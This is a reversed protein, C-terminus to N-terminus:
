SRVALDWADRPAYPHDPHSGEVIYVVNEPEPVPCEDCGHVEHADCTPPEGNQAPDYIGAVKFQLPWSPQHAMLVEADPPVDQLLEILEQATMTESGQHPAGDPVSRWGGRCPPERPLTLPDPEVPRDHGFAELGRPGRLRQIEDLTIRTDDRSQGRVVHGTHDLLMAQLRAIRTIASTSEDFTMM